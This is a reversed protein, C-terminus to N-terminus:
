ERKNFSQGYLFIIKYLDIVVYQQKKLIKKYNILLSHSKMSTATTYYPFNYAYHKYLISCKIKEKNCCCPYVICQLCPIDSIEKM